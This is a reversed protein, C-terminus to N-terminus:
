KELRQLTGLPEKFLKTPDVRKVYDMLEASSATIRVNTSFKSKKIEGKLGNAIAAEASDQSMLWLDLRNNKAIRYRVIFYPVKKGVPEKGSKDQDKINLFWHKGIRTSFLSYRTLDGGKKDNFSVAIGDSMGKEGPLIHLYGKEKASSPIWTGILRTDIKATGVDSLPNVFSPVCGALLLGAFVVAWLGVFRNRM